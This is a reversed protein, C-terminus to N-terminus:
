EAVRPPLLARGETRFYVEPERVQLRARPPRTFVRRVLDMGGKAFVAEVFKKGDVYKDLDSRGPPMMKVLQEAFSQAAESVHLDAAVREQIFSAHGELLMLYAAREEEDACAALGDAIPFHADQAAHTVEHAIVIEILDRTLRHEVKMRALAPKLNRPLLFITRDRYIYQGLLGASHGRMLDKAFELAKPESVKPNSKRVENAIPPALISAYEERTILRFKPMDLMSWGTHKEVLPMTEIIITRAFLDNFAPTGEDPPPEARM